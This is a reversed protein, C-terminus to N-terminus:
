VVEVFALSINAVVHDACRGSIRDWNFGRVLVHDYAYTEMWMNMDHKYRELM